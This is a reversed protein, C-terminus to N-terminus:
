ESEEIEPPPKRARLEGDGSRFVLRREFGTSLTPM